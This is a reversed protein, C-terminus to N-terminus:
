DSAPFADLGDDRQQVALAAEVAALRTALDGLEILKAGAVVVRTLAGNRAISNELALTEVAVTELLAQNDEIRRLGNFGYITAVTRKKRRHFGGTRRAEALDDVTDPSHWFCFPADRLPTARCLRGDAMVYTCAHGAM